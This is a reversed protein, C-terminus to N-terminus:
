KTEAPVALGALTKLDLTGLFTKVEASPIKRASAIVMFRGGVMLHVQAVGNKLGTKEFAQFGNVEGTEIRVNGNTGTMDAVGILSGALGALDKMTGTDVIRLHLLRGGEGRYVGTAGAAAIGLLGSGGATRSTTRFGPMEEPLFSKLREPDLPQISSDNFETVLRVAAEMESIEGTAMKEGLDDLRSVMNSDLGEFVEVIDRRARVVTATAGATEIMMTDGPGETVVPEVAVDGPPPVPPRVEERIKELRPLSLALVGVMMALPFVFLLARKVPHLENM